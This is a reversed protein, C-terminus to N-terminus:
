AVANNDKHFCVGLQLSDYSMLDILLCDNLDVKVAVMDVYTMHRKDKHELLSYAEHRALYSSNAIVLKIDQRGQTQDIGNHYTIYLKM